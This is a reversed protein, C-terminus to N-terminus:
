TVEKSLLSGQAQPGRVFNAQPAPWLGELLPAGRRLSLGIPAQPPDGRRRSELLVENSTILM